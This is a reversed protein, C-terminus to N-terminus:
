RRAGALESAPHGRLRALTAADPIGTPPLGSARQFQALARQTSPDLNGDAPVNVGRRRLSWQVTEVMGRSLV